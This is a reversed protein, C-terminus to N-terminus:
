RLRILGPTVRAKKREEDNMIMPGHTMTAPHSILSDVGGLSVGLSIVKVSEVLSRAAELGNKMEFAIMGSYGNEMQEKAIQHGENSELGPYYVASIKDKRSELYKAVSMANSSHQKMRLPLTTLSRLLLSADHPSLCTGFESRTLQLESWLEQNITSAIGALLDSHGGLYKTASHIVIDIGYKLPKLLIPSTFTADVVTLIEKEKGLQGFAKLDLISLDPNCLTEGFLLKTEPKIHSAWEEVPSGAGVFTVSVNLRRFYTTLLKYTGSYVPNQCIVHDGSKLISFLVSSVAAMGTNFTLSGYAGELVSMTAEVAQCTPNGLRSYLYGDEQIIKLYGDISDIEYTSSHFIAPTVPKVACKIKPKTCIAKTNDGIDSLVFDNLKEALNAEVPKWHSSM